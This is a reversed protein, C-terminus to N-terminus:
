AGLSGVMGADIYQMIISTIQAMVAPISLKWVMKIQERHDKVKLALGKKEKFM